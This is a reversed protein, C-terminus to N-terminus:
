EKPLYNGIPFKEWDVEGTERLHGLVDLARALPYCWRESVDDPEFLSHAGGRGLGLWASEFFAGNWGDAGRVINYWGAICGATGCAEPTTAGLANREAIRIDHTHPDSFWNSMDFREPPLKELAAILTSLNERNM